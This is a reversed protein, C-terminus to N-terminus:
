AAVTIHTRVSARSVLQDSKKAQRAVLTSLLGELSGAEALIQIRAEHTEAIPDKELNM